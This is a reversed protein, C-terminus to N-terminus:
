TGTDTPKPRYPGNPGPTINLIHAPEGRLIRHWTGQPVVVAHGADVDVVHEGNDLELLLRLRGDIVYLLEDGDPHMEGGHLEEGGVSSVGVTHGDLRVPPGPRDRVMFCAAGTHRDLGVVNTSLEFPEAKPIDTQVRTTERVLQETRV